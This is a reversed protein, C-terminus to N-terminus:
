LNVVLLLLLAAGGVIASLVCLGTQFFVALVTHAAAVFVLAALVLTTGLQRREMGDDQTGTPYM